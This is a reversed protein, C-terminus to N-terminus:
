KIKNKENNNNRNQKFIDFCFIKPLHPLYQLAGETSIVPFGGDKVEPHPLYPEPLVNEKGIEHESFELWDALCFSNYDVGWWLAKLWALLWSNTSTYFIELFLQLWKCVMKPATSVM